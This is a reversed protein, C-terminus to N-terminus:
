LPFDYRMFGNHKAVKDYLARAARNDEQTLWYYRSANNARAKAAVAEILARGIGKGRSGPSTFLDQLYCVTPAGHARTICTTRWGLWSGTSTRASVM